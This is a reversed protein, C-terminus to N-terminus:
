ARSAGVDVKQPLPEAGVKQRIREKEDLRSLVCIRRVCPSLLAYCAAALYFNASIGFYIAIFVAIASCLVGFIGNLAWYWPTESGMKERVLRMGIPFFFGLLVCLPSIVLVAFTIRIPMLSASFIPLWKDFVFPIAFIWLSAMLPLFFILSQKNLSIRESAFSGLGAGLIMTFLLIGLAYVPHGLFVSLRQVLGIEALMFGSGILIFYTAGSWFGASRGKAHTGFVLPIVIALLCFVVLVFILGILTVTAHLNGKLSGDGSQLALGMHRLRLMNFFYPNNDTSPEYNFPEDAVVRRLEDLSHSGLITRLSSYKPSEGPFIVLDFKLESTIKKIKALDAEQFPRKSLLLTSIKGSTIMAIHDSPQRAGSRFLSGAALSVVRGTEGLNDPNYWRSVTFIGDDALRDLFINWAEMTYLANESLSFAGAGTSAWTDILSMQIVSFHQQTRSLLSRAEDVELEVEPRDAIGAFDRFRTQLLRIFVPNVDIGLIREQGFLVASQIDRGGGVGIIVSGGKPRLYYVLNTVDFRLHDIDSLTSFRSMTTAADGDINMYHQHVLKDPPAIPSRGWYQPSSLTPSYVAVRSFSNWKELLYKTSSEVHGKIVYPRIGSQTSSNVLAFLVLLGTAWGSRRRLRLSAASANVCVFSFGAAAGVSACLIMLSPADFFELGALVFLCGFSAGILDSAYIRGIPLETKTLVASIAMGAFYFPLASAGVAMMLAFLSMISRSSQLPTLCLVILSLPLSLAYALCCKGLTHRLKEATFWSPKLYVTVAGATMGLMATSIALFAMHYWSIVSLLRSLTIELALTSFAILFTGIYINV